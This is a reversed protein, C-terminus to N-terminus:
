VLYSHHGGLMVGESTIHTRFAVEFVTVLLITWCHPSYSEVTKLVFHICTGLVSTKFANKKVISTYSTELSILKGITPGGQRHLRCKMNLLGQILFIRYVYMSTSSIAWGNLASVTRASSGIEAGLVWMLCSVVLQLKLELADSGMKQGSCADAWLTYLFQHLIFM